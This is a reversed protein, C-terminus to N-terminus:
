QCHRFRFWRVISPCGDGHWADGPTCYWHVQQGRYRLWHGCDGQWSCPDGFVEHQIFYAPAAESPIATFMRSHPFSTPIIFSVPNTVAAHNSTVNFRVEMVSILKTLHDKHSTNAKKRVHALSGQVESSLEAEVLSGSEVQDLINLAAFFAQADMYMQLNSSGKDGPCPYPYLMLSRWMSSILHMAFSVFRLTGSRCLSRAAGQLFTLDDESESKPRFTTTAVQDNPYPFIEDGTTFVLIAFLSFFFASSFPYSDLEYGSIFKYYSLFDQVSHLIGTPRRLKRRVRQCM